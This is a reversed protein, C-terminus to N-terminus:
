HVPTGSPAGTADEVGLLALVLPVVDLQTPHPGVAAHLRDRLRAGTEGPHALVLPIVGDSWAASGHASRETGDFFYFREGIPRAGGGRALLLVDGARVGHPGDTMWGLRGELAALDPRPHTALYDRVPVLREGDFVEFPPSTGDARRAVRALVLDLTGELAPVYAGTASAEHFARAVPLVDEALRPPRGWDCADGPAPCTSADALHVVASGEDYALVADYAAVLDTGIGRARPRRGVAALVARPETPVARADLSHRDDPLVATHGHDAVILVYTGDLAGRRRYSDLVAGIQRDLYTRLYARQADLGYLHAVLDPGPFYVVQLDPVGFRRMGREVGARADDDLTRYLQRRGGGTLYRTAAALLDSVDTLHLPTLLDAGRYVSAMSVHARVGAREYLTPAALVDGLLDDAYIAMTEDYTRVSVPIPAYFRRTDRDFWENGVVGNVAPPAGTFLASWGVATESPLVSLVGPAAYAHAWVGASDTPAGLLAATRPLDGAALAERLMRDSVGDIGVLLVRPAGRPARMPACLTEAGDCAAVEVTRRMLTCGALSTGALVALALVALRSATTSM